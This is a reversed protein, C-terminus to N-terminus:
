KQSIQVLRNLLAGAAGSRLQERALALGSAMDPAREAVCLAAAANLAVMESRPGTEGGLLIARLIAANQERDGGQLAALPAPEVGLALPDIVGTTVSKTPGDVMRLMTPGTLSLEDMPGDGCVVWARKRGMEMMVQAYADLRAPSAIGTLQHTPRAPNLLPGLVNFVTAIGEAALAKRVPALARFAPHYAQAFLFAIGTEEVCRVALEPPGDIRVGLAELVDAGGCLSTVARNGHKVVRVGGVAGIVFMAATSVNFLGLKDGGTGCVDLIAVEPETPIKPDLALALMANAFAAIEGATEGKERLARLLASKESDAVDSSILAAVVEQIVAEPLEAGRAALETAQRLIDSNM